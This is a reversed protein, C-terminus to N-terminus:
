IYWLLFIVDVYGAIPAGMYQAVEALCAVVMTRDQPPRPVKQLLSKIMEHFFVDFQLLLDLFNLLLQVAFKMLPGVLKALIPAFNPGMSKAFAPLLDSVADMLVEDHETYDEDDGDSEVQQCASEERLLVLTTEVLRPMDTCVCVLENACRVGFLEVLKDVYPSSTPSVPSM